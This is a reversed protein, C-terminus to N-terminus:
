CGTSRIATCRRCPRSPPPTTPLSGGAHRLGRQPLARAGGRRVGADRGRRAEGPRVQHRNGLDLGRQHHHPQGSRRDSRPYPCAPAPRRRDGVFGCPHRAAPELKAWASCRASRRMPATSITPFRSCGKAVGLRRGEPQSALPVLRAAPKGNRAIIIETERGSQVADILRSLKAKADFVNFVPM